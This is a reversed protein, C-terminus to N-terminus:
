FGGYTNFKIQQAYTVTQSKILEGLLSSIGISPNWEKGLIDCIRKEVEVFWKMPSRDITSLKWNYEIESGDRSLMNLLKELEDKINEDNDVLFDWYGAYDALQGAAQYASLLRKNADELNKFEYERVPYDTVQYDIYIDQVTPELKQHPDNVLNAASSGCTINNYLDCLRGNLLNLIESTIFKVHSEDPGIVLITTEKPSPFESNQASVSYGNSELLEIAKKIEDNM